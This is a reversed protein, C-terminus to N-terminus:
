GPHVAHAAQNTQACLGMEMPPFLETREMIPKPSKAKKNCKSRYGNSMSRDVIM